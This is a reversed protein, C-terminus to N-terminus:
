QGRPLICGAAWIDVSTNYTPLQMLLEPARRGGCRTRPAAVGCALAFPTFQEMALGQRGTIQDKSHWFLLSPPLTVRRELFLGKLSPPSFLRKSYEGQGWTFRLCRSVRPATM